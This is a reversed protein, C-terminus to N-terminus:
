PARTVPRLQCYSLSAVAADLDAIVVSDGRAVLARVLAGISWAGGAIVATRSM